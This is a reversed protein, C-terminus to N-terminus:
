PAAPLPRLGGLRGSSRSATLAIPATASAVGVNGALDRAEVRVFVEAPASRDPTWRHEGQNDLGDAITAWPGDANPSYLLKVSRPAILPDDAVYRIVVEGNPSGDSRAAGVLDVRPQEDDVGVWADPMAGSRPGDGDPSSGVVMELRVGFLGSSPLSVDIPSRGDTDVATRQWTVGGDQTTWLEARSANAPSAPDSEYDWAFRRSSTLHLPRGRYEMGAGSSSAVIDGHGIPAARSAVSTLTAATSPAAPTVLV